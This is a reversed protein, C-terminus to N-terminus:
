GIAIHGCPARAIESTGMRTPTARSISGTRQWANVTVVLRWCGIWWESSHTQRDIMWFRAGLADLALFSHFQLWFFPLLGIGLLFRTAGLRVATSGSFVFRSLAAIGDRLLLQADRM